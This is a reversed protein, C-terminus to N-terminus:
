AVEMLPKTKGKAETLGISRSITIIVLKGTSLSSIGVRKERNTSCRPM